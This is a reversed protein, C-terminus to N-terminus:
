LLPGTQQIAVRVETDVAPDAAYAVVLRGDPLRDTEFFDLLSRDSKLTGCLSGRACIGGTHIGADITVTELDQGPKGVDDVFTVDVDWIGEYDTDLIVSDSAYYAVAARDGVGATVWPMIAARSGSVKNAETWTAGWDASSAAKVVAGRAGATLGTPEIVDESWALVLRGTGTVDLTPAMLTGSWHLGWPTRPVLIGTDLIAWTDGGDLSRLLLLQAVPSAQNSALPSPGPLGQTFPVFVRAGSADFAVNGIWGVNEGFYALPTWTAGADRTTRVAIQRTPLFPDSVGGMWAVVLHGPGSAAMWQRDAWNGFPVLDGLYRWTTGQDPSSWVHVGNHPLPNPPELNSAYATGAQDVTVDADGNAGAGPRSLIGNTANNLRTWNGGEDTSRYVPGNLCANRGTECGPFTLFLLNEHSWIGPEGIKGAAMTGLLQFSIEPHPDSPAPGSALPPASALPGGLSPASLVGLVAFTAACWGAASRGAGMMWVSAPRPVTRLNATIETSVLGCALLLPGLNNFRGPNDPSTGPERQGTTPGIPSRM